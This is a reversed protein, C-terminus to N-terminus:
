FDHNIRYMKTLSRLGKADIGNINKWPPLPSSKTTVNKHYCKTTVNKTTVKSKKHNLGRWDSAFHLSDHQFARFDGNKPGAPSQTVAFRSKTTVKQPLM